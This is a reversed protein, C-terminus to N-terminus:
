ICHITKHGEESKLKRRLNTCCWLKAREKALFTLLMLDSLFKATGFDTAM